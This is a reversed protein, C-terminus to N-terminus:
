DRNFILAGKIATVKNRLGRSESADRVVIFGPETAAFQDLLAQM